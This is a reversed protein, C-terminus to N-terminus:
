INGRNIQTFQIHSRFNLNQRSTLGNLLFIVNLETQIISNGASSGIIRNM